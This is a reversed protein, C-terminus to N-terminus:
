YRTSYAGGIHKPKRVPKVNNLQAAGHGHLGQLDASKM